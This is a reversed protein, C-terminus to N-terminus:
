AQLVQNEQPQSTEGGGSSTYQEFVSSCTAVRITGTKMLNAVLLPFFLSSFSPIVPERGFSQTHKNGEGEGLNLLVVTLSGLQSRSVRITPSREVVSSSQLLLFRDLVNHIITRLDHAQRTISQSNRYQNM